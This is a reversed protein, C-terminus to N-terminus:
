EAKPGTNILFSMIIKTTSLTTTAMTATTLMSASGGLYYILAKNPKMTFNEQIRVFSQAQHLFGTEAMIYLM